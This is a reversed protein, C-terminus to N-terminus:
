PLELPIHRLKFLKRLPLLIDQSPWTIRIPSLLVGLLTNSHFGMLILILPLGLFLHILPLSSSMFIHSYFQPSLLTFLSCFPLSDSLFSFYETPQLALLLLLLNGEKSGSRLFYKGAKVQFSINGLMLQTLSDRWKYKKHNKYSWVRSVTIHPPFAMSVLLAL